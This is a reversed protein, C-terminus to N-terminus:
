YIFCGGHCGGPVKSNEITLDSYNSIHSISGTDEPIKDNKSENDVERDVPKYNFNSQTSKAKPINNIPNNITNNSIPKTNRKPVVDPTKSVVKNMMGINGRKHLEGGNRLQKTLNKLKSRSSLTYENYVHHQIANDTTISMKNHHFRKNSFSVGDLCISLDSNDILIDQIIYDGNVVKAEEKLKEAELIKEREAEEKAKVEAEAEAQLKRDNEEKQWKNLFYESTVTLQNNKYMEKYKEESILCDSNQPLFQLNRMTPPFCNNDGPIINPAKGGFRQEVQDENILAVIESLSSDNLFRIKKVTMEDLFSKVFAWIGRLFASMGIIFNIYLRCRYNAQLINMIKKLDSPLFLMSVGTLDTIINWNEVQGPIILNNVLYEMFFIVFNLWEDFSYKEKLKMYYIANIVLVPRFAHDRGHIYMFGCNLLEVIRSSIKPPILQSRWKINEKLLKITKSCEFGTAQLYRYKEFIPYNEPFKLQDNPNKNNYKKVEEELEKMKEEEFNLMKEYKMEFIRRLTKRPNKPDFIVLDHGKPIHLHAEKPPKSAEHRQKLEENELYYQLNPERETYQNEVEM